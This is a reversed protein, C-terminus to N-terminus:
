ALAYISGRYNTYEGHEKTTLGCMDPCDSCYGIFASKDRMSALMKTGLFQVQEVNIIGDTVFPNDKNPRFVTELVNEFGLLYDQMITRDIGERTDTSFDCTVVRLVSKCYAKMREYQRLRHDIQDTRDLASISTNICVGLEDLEKALDDPIIEWHKTIIVIPKGAVAIERCVNITHEWAYSPDGMEGIRVFPMDISKLENIIKNIHREDEMDFLYTQQTDKYFYRNVISGFDFKYRDAINKAYCNDYCGNPNESNCARCGKVTDLIYCGRSNKILTITGKYQKMM